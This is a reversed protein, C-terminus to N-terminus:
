GVPDVYASLWRGLEDFARSRAPERSLTVDHLAGPVRVLTVHSSLRPVRRAMLEVDLVTDTCDVDPEWVTSHCSRDSSLVLTPVDLSLGRRV